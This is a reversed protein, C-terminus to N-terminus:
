NTVLPEIGFVEDLNRNEGWALVDDIANNLSHIAEKVNEIEKAQLLKDLFGSISKLRPVGCYCSSGYLRHILENLLANDGDSIAQNIHLKEDPLGNLMMRLMDRALLPKNNALKLCLGIDVSTNADPNIDKLPIKEQELHPETAAVVEKKGSLSTWRNIIHALQSESVPKSICDDMGSILLEAKQETLSHATLAIIPTRQSDKELERIHKTTQFGDMGPM